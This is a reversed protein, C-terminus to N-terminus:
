IELLDGKKVREKQNKDFKKRTVSSFMDLGTVSNDKEDKPRERSVFVSNFRM